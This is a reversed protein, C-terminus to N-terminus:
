QIVVTIDLNHKIGASVASVVVNYTGAPANVDPPPPPTIAQYSGSGCGVILTGITLFVFCLLLGRRREQGPFAFIFAFGFVFAACSALLGRGAGGRELRATASTGPVFANIALSASTAGKVSQTSPNVTCGLSASSPACTLSVTTSGGNPGGLLLPVSASQGSKVAVRSAGASMTFDTFSVNLPAPSSSSPAFGIEGLYEAMVQFSGSPLATAPVTVTGTTVSTNSPTSPTLLVASFITGNGYLDVLGFPQSQPQSATVTVTFKVSGSSDVSSPSLSLTTTTSSVISGAFTYTAPSTFSSANWNSDGAYSASLSYAGAPVNTFTFNASSLSQNSYAYPSVASTQVLSGFNVTVNGSPPVFSNLAGLLVHVIVTSGAQYTITSNFGLSVAQAELVATFRPIGKAVTFTLPSAVSANYSGDGSYNVTVSHAGVALVQPSWSAIGQSNLPVTVSAAGDVFTATGTADGSTESTQGSPQAQFTWLSSFPAQGGSAVTASHATAPTTSWDVYQYRLSLATTSAEPTVSLTAPVSTSAAYTGDGTYQATVQYTGGPFFNWNSQASGGALTIENTGILPVPSSTKINVGGSPAQTGSNATVTAVINVATGHVISSPSLQLATSTPLFEIKNWNGILASVDVSGLGSALDYGPGATYDGYSEISIPSTLYPVPTSCGPAAQLCLVDNTGITVDHFVAAEQRALAYFTFNAQGQRGFKQDILAMIGALAPASASTGGVLLVQPEGSTVSACDGPEVCIAYATLNRGNAAFLSM